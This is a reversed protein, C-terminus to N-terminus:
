FGVAQKEGQSSMHIKTTVAKSSCRGCNGHRGLDGIHGCDLCQWQQGDKRDSENFFQRRKPPGPKSPAVITLGRAAAFSEPKMTKAADANYRAARCAPCDAACTTGNAGRKYADYQRQWRKLYTERDM